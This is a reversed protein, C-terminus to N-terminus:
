QLSEESGKLYWKLFEKNKGQATVNRHEGRVSRGSANSSGRLLYLARGENWNTNMRIHGDKQEM